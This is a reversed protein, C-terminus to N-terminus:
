AGLFAAATEGLKDLQPILEPGGCRECANITSSFATPSPMSRTAAMDRLLELSLRWAGQEGFSSFAATYIIANPRVGACSMELLAQVSHRWGGAGACAAVVAGHAIVDSELKAHKMLHLQQLAHAWRRVGACASIVASHTIVNTELSQARLGGLAGLALQWRLAKELTTMLSSQTVVNPRLDQKRMERVLQLSKQWQMGTESLVLADVVSTFTVISPLLGSSRVEDLLGLAEEWSQQGASCLLSTAANRIVVDAEVGCRRMAALIQHVQKWRDAGQCSGLLSSFTVANLRLCRSRMEDLLVAGWAWARQGDSSESSCANIAVGYAVDDAAVSRSGMLPLMGLVQKWQQGLACAKAAATHPIVGPELSSQRMAGLLDIAPRWLQRRGASM